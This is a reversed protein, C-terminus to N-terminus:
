LASRPALRDEAAGCAEILNYFQRHKRKVIGPHQRELETRQMPDSAVDYLEARAGRCRYLLTWRGASITAPLYNMVNRGLQDVVKSAEGPNYLPNSTVAFARGTGRGTKVVSAVSQGQVTGPIKKGLLDLVTPMLDASQVIANSRRPKAGPLRVLLPVRTVQEYLPSDVFLRGRKSDREFVVKGFLGHEGLHFGHDATVVVLTKDLINCAELQEIIRGIARDVMTVEGAYCARAIRLDRKTVGAQRCTSYPPRVVTGDYDPMYLETLHRPPDWPEHPDWMDVHLFFREKYRRQLWRCAERATTPAAYDEEYRREYDVDPRENGQGPVTRFTCSGRDYGMGQKQFFPTDVIGATWYGVDLLVQQLTVEEAPLPEWGLYTFTYKGTMLDARMPMTPFSGCYARDFVVCEKAFRDLHPTRIWPNGYCGLHDRRMTDTIIVVLNMDSRKSRRPM